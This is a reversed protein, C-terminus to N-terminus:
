NQHELFGSSYVVTEGDTLCWMAELGDIREVLAQGDELSMCFLATSLCDALGADETLVSVSNFYDAPYLTDPDILHHYRVGDVTYYRQYDGSVVLSLDTLQLAVLSATEGLAMAWPDEVGGVWASGDPKTGIGRLNGGISMLMSTLGRAEANQAIMECAYGKGCSGVDLQLEADAFYVTNNETDLIVEDLNTHEAAALLEAEDPLKATEPTDSAIEREDHWLAFVTGMAVNVEGDTLAYMEKAELLLNIIEADVAVPAEAANANITALNNVGDYTNYIDYLENYFALDAEIAAMHADFEEQSECYAIITTVTDFYGYIVTSYRNLEGTSSDTDSETAESSDADTNTADESQATVSSTANNDQGQAVMIALSGAICILLFAILFIAVTRTINETFFRKM